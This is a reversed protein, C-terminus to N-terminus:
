APEYQTLAHSCRTGNSAHINWQDEYIDYLRFLAERLNGKEQGLLDKVCEANVLNPVAPNKNLVQQTVWLATQNDV